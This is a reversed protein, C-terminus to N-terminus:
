SPNDSGEIPKGLTQLRDSYSRCSVPKRIVTTPDDKLLQITYIRKKFFSIEQPKLAFIPTLTM